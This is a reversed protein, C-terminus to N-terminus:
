YSDASDWLQFKKYGGDDVEDEDFFSGRTERGLTEDGGSTIGYGDQQIPDTLNLRM